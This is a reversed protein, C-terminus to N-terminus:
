TNVDAIFRTVEFYAPGGTFAETGFQYILLHQDRDPFGHYYILYDFFEKMDAEFRHINPGAPVFSFVKMKGGHNYGFHLDWDYGAINVRAIPRKAESIPWVGGYCALWIMVEYEGSSNAHDRDPDTFFDFAVNARIRDTDYAWEVEVPLSVVDRLLPRDFQRAGYVYSKVQHDGGRWEWDSSWAIGRGGPAPGDYHTLQSGSVANKLGWTNNNLEYGNVAHYGWQASLTRLHTPPM